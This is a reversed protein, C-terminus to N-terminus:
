SSAEPAQVSCLATLLEACPLCVGKEAKRLGAYVPHVAMSSYRTSLQELFQQYQADKCVSGSCQLHLPLLCLACQFLGSESAELDRATLEPRVPGSGSSVGACCFVCSDLPLTSENHRAALACEWMKKLRIVVNGAHPRDKKRSRHARVGARALILEWSKFDKVEEWPTVSIVKNDGDLRTLRGLRRLPDSWSILSVQGSCIDVGLSMECPTEYLNIDMGAQHFSFNLAQVSEDVEVSWKQWPVDARTRTPELSAATPTPGTPPVEVSVIAKMDPSSGSAESRRLRFAELAADHQMTEIDVKGPDLDDDILTATPMMGPGRPAQGRVRSGKKMLAEEHQRTEM